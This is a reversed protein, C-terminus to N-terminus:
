GLPGERDQGCGLLSGREDDKLVGSILGLFHWVFGKVLCLLMTLFRGRYADCLGIYEENVVRAAEAAASPDPLYPQAQSVSLVQTDVGTRDLLVLREAIDQGALAAAETPPLEPRGILELYRRPYYHAHVDIIMESRM